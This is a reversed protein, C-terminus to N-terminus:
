SAVTAEPEMAAITISDGVRVTGAVVIRTNVGRLRLARGDSSGVFRLADAGFRASFKECGTHPRDSM